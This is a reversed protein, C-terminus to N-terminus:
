RGLADRRRGQGFAGAWARVEDGIVADEGRCGAPAVEDHGCRRGSRGCGRCSWFLVMVRGASRGGPGLKGSGLQEFADELDVNQDAGTAPARTLQDGRDGVAGSCALDERMESQGRGWWRQRRGACGAFRRELPLALAFSMRDRVLAASGLSIQERVAVTRLGLRGRVALDGSSVGFGV